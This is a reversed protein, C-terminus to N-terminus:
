RTYLADQWSIRHDALDSMLVSALVFHDQYTGGPLSALFWNMWRRYNTYLYFSWRGLVRAAYPADANVTQPLEGTYNFWEPQPESTPTDEFAPPLVFVRPARPVAATFPLQLRRTSRCLSSAAVDGAGGGGEFQCRARHVDQVARRISDRTETAAERLAKVYLLKVRQQEWEGGVVAVGYSRGLWWWWAGEESSDGVRRAHRRVLTQELLRQLATAAYRARKNADPVTVAVLGPVVIHVQQTGSPQLTWVRPTEWSGGGVVGIRDGASSHSDDAAGDMGLDQRRQQQQQPKATAPSQSADEDLGSADYVSDTGYVTVRPAAASSSSSHLLVAADSRHLWEAGLMLTSPRGQSPTTGVTSGLASASLLHSLSFRLAASQGEAVSSRTLAPAATTIPLAPSVYSPLPTSAAAHMWAGLTAYPAMSARMSEAIHTLETPWRATVAEGFLTEAPYPLRRLHQLGLATEEASGVVLLWPAGTLLAYRFGELLRQAYSASVTVQDPSLWTSEVVVAAMPFDALSSAENNLHPLDTAASSSLAADAARSFPHSEHLHYAQLAPTSTAEAAADFAIGSEGNIKLVAADHLIAAHLALTDSQSMLFRFGADYVVYLSLIGMLMMTNLFRLRLPQEM